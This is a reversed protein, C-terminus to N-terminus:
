DDNADVVNRNGGHAARPLLFRHRTVDLGRDHVAVVTLGDLAVELRDVDLAPAELVLDRARARPDISRPAGDVALAHQRRHEDFRARVDRRLAALRLEHDTSEGRG